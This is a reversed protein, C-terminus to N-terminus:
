RWATAPSPTRGYRPPVIRIQGPVMPFGHFSNTLYSWNIGIKNLQNLYTINWWVDYSLYIHSITTKNMKIWCKSAFHFQGWNLLNFFLHSLGPNTRFLDIQNITWGSQFIPSDAPNSDDGSTSNSLFSVVLWDNMFSWLWKGGRSVEACLIKFQTLLYIYSIYRIQNTTEVGRFFIVRVFVFTSGSPKIGVNLRLGRHAFWPRDKRRFVHSVFRCTLFHPYCLGHLYWSCCHSVPMVYVGCTAHWNWWTKSVLM